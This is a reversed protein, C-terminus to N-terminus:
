VLGYWKQWCSKYGFYNQRSKTKRLGLELLQKPVEKHKQKQRFQIFNQPILFIVGRDVAYDMQEHGEEETNQQGWTMTGLCILSVDLDTNGLKKYKM